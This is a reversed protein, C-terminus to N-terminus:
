HMLHIPGGEPGHDPHDCPRGDWCHGGADRARVPVAAELFSPVENRPPSTATPPLEVPPLHREITPPTREVTLSALSPHETIAV